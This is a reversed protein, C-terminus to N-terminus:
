GAPDSAPPSGDAASSSLPTTTSLVEDLPEEECPLLQFVPLGGPACVDAAEFRAAARGGLARVAASCLIQGPQAAYCLDRAGGVARVAEEETAAETVEIGIRSAGPLGPMLELAATLARAVGSFLLAISDVSGIVAGGHQRAVLTAVALVAEENPWAQVLVASVMGSGTAGSPRNWLELATLVAALFDRSGSLFHRMADRGARIIRASRPDSLTGVLGGEVAEILGPLHGLVGLAERVLRARSVQALGGHEVVQDVAGALLLGLGYREFSNLDPRAERLDAVLSRLFRLLVRRQAAVQEPADGDEPEATPPTATPANPHVTGDPVAIASDGAPEPQPDPVAAHDDAAGDWASADAHAEGDLTPVPTSIPQLHFALEPPTEEVPEKAKGRKSTSPRRPPAPAPGPASFGIVEIQRGFTVIWPLAVLLFATLFLGGMLAQTNKPDSAQLFPLHQLFVGGSVTILTAIFSSAAVIGGLRMLVSAPTMDRRHVVLHQHRIVRRRAPREPPPAEPQDGSNAGRTTYIDHRDETGSRPRYESRVVKTVAALASELAKAEALAANRDEQPYRGHMQWGTPDLVFVEYSIIRVSESM